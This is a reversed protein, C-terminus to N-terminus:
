ALTDVLKMTGVVRLATIYSAEGFEWAVMEGDTKDSPNVPLTRVVVSVGNRTQLKAIDSVNGEVVVEISVTLKFDGVGTRAIVHRAPNFSLGSSACQGPHRPRNM